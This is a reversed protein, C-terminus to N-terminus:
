KGTPVIAVYEDYTGDTVVRVDTGDFRVSRIGDATPYYLRGGDPSWVPGGAAIPGEVVKRRGTGDPRQVYLNRGSAELGAMWAGDPSFRIGSIYYTYPLEVRGSGDAASVCVLDGNDCGHVIRGDPTWSPSWASRITWRQGGDPADTDVVVISSETEPPTASSSASRTFALLTGDPSWAPESHSTDGGLSMRREENTRLDVMWVSSAPFVTGGSRTYALLRGDPSWAPMSADAVLERVPRGDGTLEWIDGARAVALRIGPAADARVGPSGSESPKTAPQAGPQRAPAPSGIGGALGTVADGAGPGASAGGPVDIPLEDGSGESAPTGVTTPGGTPGTLLAVVLAIAMAATPVAARRVRRRRRARTIRHGVEARLEGPSRIPLVLEEVSDASM